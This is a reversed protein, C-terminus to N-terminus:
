SPLLVELIGFIVFASRPCIPSLFSPVGSATFIFILIKLIWCHRPDIIKLCCLLSINIVFHLKPQCCLSFFIRSHSYETHCNHVVKVYWRFASVAGVCTAKYSRDKPNCIFCKKKSTTFSNRPPFFLLLVAPHIM